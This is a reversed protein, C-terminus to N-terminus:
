GTKRRLEIGVTGGGQEGFGHKIADTVLENVILAVTAARRAPRGADVCVGCPSDHRRTTGQFHGALQGAVAIWRFVDEGAATLERLSIGCSDAHCLELGLQVCHQFLNSPLSAMANAPREPGVWLEPTITVDAVTLGM